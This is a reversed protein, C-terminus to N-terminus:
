NHYFPISELFRKLCPNRNAPNWACIIGNEQDEVRAKAIDYIEAPYDFYADIMLVAVGPQFLYRIDYATKYKYAVEPKIGFPLLRENLDLLYTNDVDTGGVVIFKTDSLDATKISQKGALPHDKSMLIIANDRAAYCWKMKMNEIEFRKFDALFILDYHGKQLSQELDDMYQSEIEVEIEPHKQTFDSILPQFYREPRATNILGLRLVRNQENHMRLARQYTTQLALLHTKWEDYLLKGPETLELHRTTRIFLTIDLDKELKAISKSVASQTMHLVSSARAFGKEEVVTLFTIIQQVTLTSLTKEM